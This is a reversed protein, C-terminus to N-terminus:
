QNSVFCNPVQNSEFSYPIKLSCNRQLFHTHRLDQEPGRDDDTVMFLRLYSYKVMMVLEKAMYLFLQRDNALKVRIKCDNM